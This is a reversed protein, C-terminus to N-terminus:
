NLAITTGKRRYDRFHFISGELIVTTEKWKPHNEVTDNHSSPYSKNKLSKRTKTTEQDLISRPCSRQKAWYDGCRWAIEVSCGHISVAIRTLSILIYSRWLRFVNTMVTTSSLAKPFAGFTEFCEVADLWFSWWNLFGFWSSLKCGPFNVHTRFFSWNLLFYMKWGHIKLPCTLKGWASWCETTCHWSNWIYVHNPTDDTDTDDLLGEFSEKM